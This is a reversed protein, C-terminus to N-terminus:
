DLPKGCIYIPVSPEKSHQCSGAEQREGSGSSELGHRGQKKLIEQLTIRADTGLDELCDRKEQEGGDGERGGCFALVCTEERYM